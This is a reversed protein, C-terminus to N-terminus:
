NKPNLLPWRLASAVNFGSLSSISRCRARRETIRPLSCPKSPRGVPRRLFPCMGARCAIVDV